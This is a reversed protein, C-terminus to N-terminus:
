QFYNVIILQEQISLEDLDKWSDENEFYVMIIGETPMQYMASVKEHQYEYLSLKNYENDFMIPIQCQLPKEESTDMLEKSLFNRIGQVLIEYLNNLTDIPLNRTANIVIDEKFNDLYWQKDVFYAGDGYLKLGEIDNILHCHNEAEPHEIIEQSEPFEIVVFEKM